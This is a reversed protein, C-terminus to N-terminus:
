NAVKRYTWSQARSGDILSITAVLADGELRYAIRQPYDHAPNEFVAEGSGARVLRFAVAPAGNPSAHYYLNGDDGSAIRLFEFDGKRFGRVSRSLGLMMGGEASTWVEETWAPGSALWDDETRWQGGLWSLASIEATRDAARPPAAALLLAAAAALVLQLKM